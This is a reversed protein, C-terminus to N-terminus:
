ILHRFTPEINKAHLFAIIDELTADKLLLGAAAAPAARLPAPPPAVTHKGRLLALADDFQVADIPQLGELFTVQGGLPSAM